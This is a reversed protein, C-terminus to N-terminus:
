CFECLIYRYIFADCVSANGTYDHLGIFEILSTNCGPAITQDSCNGLFQDLWESKGEATWGTSSVSPSVLRLPPTMSAAVAQVEPWKQAADKPSCAHPHNKSPDPENYGLLFHVNAAPWEKKWPGSPPLAQIGNIMPVYEAGMSKYTSPSGEPECKNHQSPHVIWNYWWSDQLNLAAM